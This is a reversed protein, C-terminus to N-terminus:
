PMAMVAAAGLMCTVFALGLLIVKLFRADAQLSINEAKMANEEEGSFSLKMAVEGHELPNLLTM